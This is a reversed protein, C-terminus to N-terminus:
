KLSTTFLGDFKLREAASREAASGSAAGSGDAEGSQPSQSGAVAHQREPLPATRTAFAAEIKAKLTRANFPNVIYSNVGARKAAIVNEPKSEGTMIFPTRGLGPDGRVERLFDCGTMPETQWDAIVLGYRKTRMKALADTANGSDDVNFSGLQRLLTRIQTTTEHGAVVLISMSPDFAM